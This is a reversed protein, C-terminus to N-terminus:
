VKPIEGNENEWEEIKEVLFNNVIQTLAIHIGKEKYGYEIIYDLKDRIKDSIKVMTIKANHM